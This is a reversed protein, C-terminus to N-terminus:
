INYNKSGLETHIATYTYSMDLVVLKFQEGNIQDQLLNLENSYYCSLPRSMITGEGCYVVSVNFLLNSFQDQKVTRIYFLFLFLFRM